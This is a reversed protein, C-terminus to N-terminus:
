AGSIDKTKFTLMRCPYVKELVDEVDSVCELEGIWKGQLNCLTKKVEKALRDFRPGTFNGKVHHIHSMVYVVIILNSLYTNKNSVLSPEDVKFCIYSGTETPTGTPVKLYPFISTWIM